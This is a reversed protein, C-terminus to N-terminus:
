RSWPLPWFPPLTTESGSSRCKRLGTEKGGDILLEFCPDDSMMSSVYELGLEMVLEITNESMDFNASRHGVVETGAVRELM